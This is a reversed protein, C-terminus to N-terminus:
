EAKGDGAAYTAFVEVSYARYFKLYRFLMAVCVALAVAGRLEDSAAAQAAGHRIDTILEAIFIFTACAAVFTLNRCFGYLRIFAGLRDAAHADRKAQVFAAWFLDEGHLSAGNARAKREVLTKLHASLPAYYGRFLWRRIPGPKAEGFLTSSPARLLRHVLQRELIWAAPSAIAQGLVYSGILIAAGDPVTWLAGAIFHTGFAMDSVLLAVAGVTVYAFIEYDSFRSLGEM